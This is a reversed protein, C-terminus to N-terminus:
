RAQMQNGVVTPEHHQRLAALNGVQRGPYKGEAQAAQRAVHALQVAKRNKQGLREDVRRAESPNAVASRVPPPQAQRLPKGPQRAARRAPPPVPLRLLDVHSFKFGSRPLLQAALLRRGFPPGTRLALRHRDLFQAAQVGIQLGDGVKALLAALAVVDGAVQRDHDDGPQAAVAANRGEAFVGGAQVVLLEPGDAPEPTRGPLAERGRCGRGEM